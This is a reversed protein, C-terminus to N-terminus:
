APYIQRNYFYFHVALEFKHGWYKSYIHQQPAGPQESAAHKSVCQTQQHGQCEEAM